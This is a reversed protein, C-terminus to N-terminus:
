PAVQKQQGGPRDSRPEVSMPPALDHSIRSKLRPWDDATSRDMADLDQKLLERRGLLAHLRASDDHSAAPGRAEIASRLSAVEADIHDIDKQLQGQIEIQDRRFAALDEARKRLTEDTGEDREIEGSTLTTEQAIHEAQANAREEAERRRCGSALVLLSLAALVAVKSRMLGIKKKGIRHWELDRSIGGRCRTRARARGM